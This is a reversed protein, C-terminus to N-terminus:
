VFTKADLGPRKFAFEMFANQTLTLPQTNQTKSERQISTGAHCATYIQVTTASHISDSDNSIVAEGEWGERGRVSGM